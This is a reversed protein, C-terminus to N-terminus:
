SRAVPEIPLRLAAPASAPVVPSQPPVPAVRQYDQGLVPRADDDGRNPWLAMAREAQATITLSPNVGLNATISSGDVVHLGPHGYVRHYGDIVGREPSSGIVAGGIFHATMPASVLDGFNGAAVGGVTEALKRATVNGAPIWQPNPDGDGPGTTLHWGRLRSKVSSVTLSNDVNQMVLAILGRESWRRVNLMKISEVPESAVKKAWVKWRPVDPQADTMVTTLLGMLNSGRGYRVSEVHTSEDAHFSSTIATGRTFDAGSTSRVAGVLAESNSRSLRGLMPSINPLNGEDRQRHLLKQTNYTGAAVVVQEASLTRASKNTWSGSTVTDVEYGGSTLPRIATVTTLPHVVTGAREALGLYNKVLTNKANHRCGTMCEGCDTCGTREPGVGGFFPDPTTVGPGSGYYVGVPTLRFTDAVGMEQAVSLFAEDAPTMKPTDVVGLMRAAQDYYPALEAAWDTMDAWQPDRFFSEPPVYLTNAYVLSGGGVGAGALVIVDPLVHIRQLGRLGLKPAWLFRNIRWSTAPFDEDAFRRGAEIVGVRYGKETLRLATVSGGFGSGVVLVDYDFVTM